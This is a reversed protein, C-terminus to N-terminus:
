KEIIYGEINIKKLNNRINQLIFKGFRRKNVLVVYGLKTKYTQLKYIKLHNYIKFLDQKVIGADLDGFLVKLIVNIENGLPFKFLNKKLLSPNCNSYNSAYGISKIEKNIDFSFLICNLSPKKLKFLVGYEKQKFYNIFNEDVIAIDVQYMSLSKKLSTYDNFIFFNAKEKLKTELLNFFPSINKELGIKKLDVLIGVNFSYLSTILLFIIKKM